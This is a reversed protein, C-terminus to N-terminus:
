PLKILKEDSARFLLITKGLVQAVAAGAAQALQEAVERRDTLCGDQLKVKILEHATLAEDVATIVEDSVEQKGIMVIPQLKHGLGRLFRAQKGTLKRTSSVDNM